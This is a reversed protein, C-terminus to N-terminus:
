TKNAYQVKTLQLRVLLTVNIIDEKRIQSVQGLMDHMQQMSDTYTDNNNVMNEPVNIIPINVIQGNKIKSIGPNADLITKVPIDFKRAISYFNDSKVAKYQIIEIKPAEQNLIESSLKDDTNIRIIRGISFSSENLGLNEKLISEM